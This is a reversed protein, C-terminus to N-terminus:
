FNVRWGAYANEFAGRIIENLNFIGALRGDELFGALRLDRGSALGEITRKLQQTFLDDFGIAHAMTASWPAFFSEGVEHVRIFEGRDSERLPRMCMRATQVLPDLSTLSM